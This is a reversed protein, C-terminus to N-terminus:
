VISQLINEEEGDDIMIRRFCCVTIFGRCIKCIGVYITFFYLCWSLFDTVEIRMMNYWRMEVLGVLAEVEHRLKWWWLGGFAASLAAKEVWPWRREEFRGGLVADDVVPRVITRCWCLMTEHLGVSMVVKNLLSSEGAALLLLQVGAERRGVIGLGLCLQLVVLFFCANRLRPRIVRGMIINIKANLSVTILM